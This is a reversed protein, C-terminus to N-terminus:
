KPLEVPKVVPRSTLIDTMRITGGVNFNLDVPTVEHGGKSLEVQVPSKEKTHYTFFCVNANSISSTGRYNHQGLHRILM